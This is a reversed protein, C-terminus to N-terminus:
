SVPLPLVELLAYHAAFYSLFSNLSITSVVFNNWLKLYFCFCFVFLCCFVFLLLLLFGVSNRVDLFLCILWNPMAPAKALQVGHSLSLSIDLTTECHFLFSKLLLNFLEVLSVIDWTSFLSWNQKTVINRM